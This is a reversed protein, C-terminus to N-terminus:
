RIDKYKQKEYKWWEQLINVSVGNIIYLLLINDIIFTYIRMSNQGRKRM